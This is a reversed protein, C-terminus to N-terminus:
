ALKPTKEVPRTFASPVPQFRKFGPRRPSLTAVSPALCSVRRVMLGHVLSRM